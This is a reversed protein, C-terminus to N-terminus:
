IMGSDKVKEIINKAFDWLEESGSAIKSNVDMIKEYKINHEKWTSGNNYYNQLVPELRDLAFAFKAEASEHSEFENWLNIFETKQQDPLISFIRGAAKLELEKVEDKNKSYVLCDGADIEVIDHILLMKLVKLIDVKENSYEQLVVAMMCIHWSHEADNEFKSGDFLKTKRLISKIKDIEVIFEIQKIIKNEM